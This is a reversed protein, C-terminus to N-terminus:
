MTTPELQLLPATVRALSPHSAVREWRIHAVQSYLQWQELEPSIVDVILGNWYAGRAAAGVTLGAYIVRISFYEVQGESAVQYM